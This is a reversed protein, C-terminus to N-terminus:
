RDCGWISIENAGLGAKVLEDQVVVLFRAVFFRFIVFTYDPFFRRSEDATEDFIQLNRFRWDDAIESLVRKRGGACVGGAEGQGM